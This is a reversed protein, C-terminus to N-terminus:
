FLQYKENSSVTLLGSMLRSITYHLTQWSLFWTYAIVPVAINFRPLIIGLVEYYETKGVLLGNVCIYTLIELIANVADQKGHFKFYEFM